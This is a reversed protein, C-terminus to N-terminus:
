GDVAEVAERSRIAQPQFWVPGARIGRAAPSIGTGGQGVGTGQEGGGNDTEQVTREAGQAHGGRSRRWLSRALGYDAVM